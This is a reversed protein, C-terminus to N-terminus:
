AKDKSQELLANAREELTTGKLARALPGLRKMAEGKDGRQIMADIEDLQKTAADLVDAKTKGVMEVIAQAEKAVKKELTATESLAKTLNGDALDKRIDADADKVKALVKRSVGKGHAKELEKKKATVLDELMGVGYGGKINGMEELTYPDVVSTYPIKGTNNYSGAKSGCLSKIDEATLNPWGVMFDKEVGDVDKKKYTGARRDGKEIGEDLRSLCLVEVTNEESFAIYKKNQLVSGHV